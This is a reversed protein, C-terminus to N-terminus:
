LGTIGARTHTLSHTHTYTHTLKTTHTWNLLMQSKRFPPPLPNVHTLSHKVVMAQVNFHCCATKGKHLLDPLIWTPNLLQLNSCHGRCNLLDRLAVSCKVSVLNLNSDYSRRIQCEEDQFGSVSCTHTHTHKHPNSTLVSGQYVSRNKPTTVESLNSATWVSFFFCLFYIPGAGRNLHRSMLGPELLGYFCTVIQQNPVLRTPGYSCSLQSFLFVLGKKHSVMATGRM